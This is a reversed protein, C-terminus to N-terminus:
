NRNNVNPVNNVQGNGGANMLQKIENHDGSSKKVILYGWYMSLFWGILYPSTILQVFGMILQTKNINADGLCACIMTGTGPLVVNLFFCVYAWINGLVPVNTVLEWVRLDM